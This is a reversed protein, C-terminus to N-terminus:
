RHPIQPLTRPKKRRNRMHRIQKLNKLRLPSIGPTRLDLQYDGCLLLSHGTLTSSSNMIVSGMASKNTRRPFAARRRWSTTLTGTELTFRCIRM